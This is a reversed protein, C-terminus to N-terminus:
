KAKNKALIAAKNAKYMPCNSCKLQMFYTIRSEKDEEEKKKWNQLDAIKMLLEAKLKVDNSSSALLNLEELTEDKSRIVNEGEKINGDKDRERKTGFLEIERDEIYYVVGHRRFFRYMQQELSAPNDTPKNPRSMVYALLRKEAPPLSSVIYADLAFGEKASLKAKEVIRKKTEQDLVITKQGITQKKGM